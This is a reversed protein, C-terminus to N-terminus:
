PSLEEPYDALVTALDAVSPALADQMYGRVDRRAEANSTIVAVLATLLLAIGLLLRECIQYM